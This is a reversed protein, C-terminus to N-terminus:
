TDIGPGALRALGVQIPTFHPGFPPDGMFCKV